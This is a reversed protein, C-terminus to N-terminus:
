YLGKEEDNMMERAKDIAEYYKLEPNERLLLVALEVANKVQVDTM